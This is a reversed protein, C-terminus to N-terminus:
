GLIAKPPPVPPDQTLAHLIPDPFCVEWCLPPRYFAFSGPIFSYEFKKFKPTFESKKEAQKGKAIRKCLSCPHDGDFTKRVADTLTTEQVYRVIMGVWAVSQLLVWHSGITLSLVLALLVKTVRPLM